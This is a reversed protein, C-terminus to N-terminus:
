KKSYIEKAVLYTVIGIITATPFFHFPSKIFHIISESTHDAAHALANAPLILVAILSILYKM